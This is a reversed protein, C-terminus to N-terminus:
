NFPICMIIIIIVVVINIIIIVVAVVVTLIWFRTVFASDNQEDSNLRLNGQSGSCVTAGVTLCSWEREGM